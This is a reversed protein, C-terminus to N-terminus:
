CSKRISTQLNFLEILKSKAEGLQDAKLFLGNEEFLDPSREARARFLDKETKANRFIYGQWPNKWGWSLNLVYDVGDKRTRYYCQSPRWMLADQWEDIPLPEDLESALLMKLLTEADVPKAGKARSVKNKKSASTKSNM